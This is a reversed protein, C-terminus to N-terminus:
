TCAQLIEMALASSISYDQVLGDIHHNYDWQCTVCNQSLQIFVTVSRLQSGRQWKMETSTQLRTSHIEKWVGFVFVADLRLVQNRQHSVIEKLLM